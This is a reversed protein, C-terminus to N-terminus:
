RPPNVRIETPKRADRGPLTVQVVTPPDAAGFPTASAHAGMRHVRLTIDRKALKYQGVSPSVLVRITGNPLCSVKVTTKRFLGRQYGNSNGDDEYLTRSVSGSTPPYIDAIMADKRIQATGLVDKSLFLIGGQRVYMPTHWLPSNVSISKPGKVVDGTWADVWTGPPVWLSTKVQTETAELGYWNLQCIADNGNEFYEVRIDYTKGQELKISGDTATEAQDHWANIVQKGDIFMRSGDDSNLSFRYTQTKPMPGIKGKWRVSFHDNPLAPDPSGLRWNFDINADDRALVPTGGLMQNTFYEGRLGTLLSSPVPKAEGSLGHTVPAVLLDQGLLYQKNSAAEAYQPWELDCRRLVPTGDDYAQRAASYITPMLRYRLKIYDTVIKEAEPGYAWPHRDQGRTCHVRMIPSLAGYELFRVYLETTPPTAHGGLDESMYPLLSNVGGDVANEVGFQLFRWEGRTDGTWWIPFRHSAPHPAYRRFGNDIGDVNTMILPRRDPFFRQTMDQYLRQGWVEHRLGPMPSNLSVGWNRDYWWTEMGMKFLKTLGDWRYNLEVPALADASQPEPHDNYMLKVGRKHAEAIFRPMDPFDKEEVSYGHSGNVRWDTDVVFMDIPIKKSRYTDISALAEQETYPHYRSDIYGLASLPPMPTHGTLNLFDKRLQSYGGKGPVFVYVDPADNGRDWGSDPVATPAPTAGWVPPILRPSDAVAYASPMKGPSPLFDNKPLSRYTYVVNGAKDLVQVGKLGGGDPVVVSYTTASLVTAGGIKSSRVQGSFSARNVVTFTARDEFGKVGREELRVLGSSLFEVRVDGFVFALPKAFGSAPFVLTLSALCTRAKMPLGM